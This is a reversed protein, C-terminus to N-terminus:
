TWRFFGRFRFLFILHSVLIRCDQNAEWGKSWWYEAPRKRAVRNSRVVQIRRQHLQIALQTAAYCVLFWFFIHLLITGWFPLLHLPCLQRLDTYQLLKSMQQATNGRCAGAAMKEKKPMRIEVSWWFFIAHPTTYVQDFFNGAAAACIIIIAKIMVRASIIYYNRKSSERRQKGLKVYHTANNANNANNTRKCTIVFQFVDM